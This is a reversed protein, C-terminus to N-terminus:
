VNGKPQNLEKNKKAKRASRDLLLACIIMAPGPVAAGLREAMNQSKAAVAGAGATAVIGFILLALAIKRKM